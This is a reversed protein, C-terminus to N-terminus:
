QMAVTHSKFLWHRLWQITVAHDNHLWQSAVTYCSHPKQVAMTFGGRSWLLPLTYASNSWQTAMTFGIYQWHSAVTFGSPVSQKALTHVCHPLLTAMTYDSYLWQAAVTAIMFYQSAVTGDRHLWLTAVTFGNHGRHFCQSIVTCGSHLWRLTIRSPQGLPFVKVLLCTQTLLSILMLSVLYGYQGKAALHEYNLEEM